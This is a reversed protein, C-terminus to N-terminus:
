CNLQKQIQVTGPEPKPKKKSKTLTKKRRKGGVVAQDSDLLADDEADGDSEVESPLDQKNDPVYDEDSTDSDDPLDSINM